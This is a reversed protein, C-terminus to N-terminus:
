IDYKNLLLKLIAKSKSLKLEKIFLAENYTICHHYALDVFKDYAKYQPIIKTKDADLFVEDARKELVLGFVDASQTPYKIFRQKPWALDIKDAPLLGSYKIIDIPFTLALDIGLDVTLVLKGGPKLIRVLERIGQMQAPFDSIHELVSICYVVDFTDDEVKLAQIESKVFNFGVDNIYPETVGFAYDSDGDDKSILDNDFGWVNEKGVKDCLYITFPTTGCGIDAVKMGPVLDQALLAFPYEWLRAGYYMPRPYEGYWGFRSHNIETFDPLKWDRNIQMLEANVAEYEPNGIDEIKAFRSIMNNM